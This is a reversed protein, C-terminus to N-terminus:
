KLRLRPMNYLNNLQCGSHNVDVIIPIDDIAIYLINSVSYLLICLFVNVVGAFYEQLLQMGTVM